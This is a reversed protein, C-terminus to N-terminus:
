DPVSRASLPCQTFGLRRANEYLIMSDFPWFSAPTSAFTGLTFMWLMFHLITRPDIIVGKVYNWFFMLFGPQSWRGSSGCVLLGNPFLCM